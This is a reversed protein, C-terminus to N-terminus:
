APPMSRGTSLGAGPHSNTYCDHVSPVFGGSISSVRKATTSILVTSNASGSDPGMIFLATPSGAVRVVCASDLGGCPPRLAVVLGRWVVRLYVRLGGLGRGLRGVALGARVLGVGRVDVGVLLGRELDTLAPSDAMAM